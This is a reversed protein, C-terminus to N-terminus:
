DRISKPRHGCELVIGFCGQSISKVISIPEFGRTPIVHVLHPKADLIAQGLPIVYLQNLKNCTKQIPNVKEPVRQDLVLNVDHVAPLPGLAIPSQFKHGLIETSLGSFYKMNAMGNLKLKILNFDNQYDAPQDGNGQLHEFTQKDLCLRAHEEYDLTTAFGEVM